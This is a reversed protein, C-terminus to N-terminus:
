GGSTLMIIYYLTRYIIFLIILALVLITFRLATRATEEMTFLIFSYSTISSQYLIRSYLRTYSPPVIALEPITTLAIGLGLFGYLSAAIFVLMTTEAVLYGTFGAIMTAMAGATSLLIGARTVGLKKVLGAYAISVYLNTGVLSFSYIVAIGLHALPFPTIYVLIPITSLLIIAYRYSTIGKRVWYLSSFINSLTQIFGLLAALYDPANLDRMIRPVWAISLLSSSSLLVVLLLYVNVAKVEAEEEKEFIKPIEREELPAIAMIISAVLGLMFAIIYLAIYKTGPEGVALTIVMIVQAIISAISGSITRQAVLRKYEAEPFSVLFFQNLFVGTPITSAVALSYVITESETSYAAFPIALWMIRELVHFFLLKKKSPVLVAKKYLILAMLLALLGAFSNLLLLDRLGYGTSVLFIPTLGRTIVVYFGGFAAELVFLLFLLEKGKKKRARETIISFSPRRPLHM